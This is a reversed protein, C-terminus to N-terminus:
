PPSDISLHTQPCFALCSLLATCFSPSLSFGEFWGPSRGSWVVASDVVNILKGTVATSLQGAGVPPSSSFYFLSFKTKIFGPLSLNELFRGHYGRPPSSAQIRPLYKSTDPQRQLCSVSGEAEIFM